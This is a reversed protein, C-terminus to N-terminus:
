MEFRPIVPPNPTGPIRGVALFLRLGPVAPNALEGLLRLASPAPLAGGLAATSARWPFDRPVGRQM